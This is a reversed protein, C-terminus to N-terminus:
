CVESFDSETPTKVTFLLKNCHPCFVGTVFKPKSLETVGTVSNDVYLDELNINEVGFELAEALIQEEETKDMTGGACKMLSHQILSSKMHKIGLTDQLNEQPITEKKLLVAIMVNQHGISREAM